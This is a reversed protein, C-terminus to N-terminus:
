GIQYLREISSIYKNVIIQIEHNRRVYNLGNLGMTKRLENDDLLLQIDECMKSFTTSHFGLKQKCIIEDPDVNLSVVPTENMWAQIFTNPFGEFRSTNIFISAEKFYSNIKTFPVRGLFSLNKYVNSEEKIKNYLFSNNPGGIMLFDVDPFEKVLDLFIEPQKVESISAVWLIYKKSVKKSIRSDPIQFGNPIIKNEIGLNYLLSNYQYENQSIILDAFFLDLKEAINSLFNEDSFQCQNDITANTAIHFISKRRMIKSLLTVVGPSGSEHYYIDAEATKMANWIAIIKKLLPPNEKYVYSPIIKVGDIDQKMNEQKYTIFSINYGKKKLEKGILVQQVESGGIAGDDLDALLPYSSLSIFCIKLSMMEGGVITYKLM